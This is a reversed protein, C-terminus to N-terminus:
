DRISIQYRFHLEDFMRKLLSDFCLGADFESCSPNVPSMALGTMIMPQVLSAPFDKRTVARHRWKALRPTRTAGNLACFMLLLAATVGSPRSTPRACYICAMAARVVGWAMM